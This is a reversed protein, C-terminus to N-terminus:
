RKSFVCLSKKALKEDKASVDATKTKELYIYGTKFFNVIEYCNQLLKNYSLWFAYLTNQLHSGLNLNGGCQMGARLPQLVLM